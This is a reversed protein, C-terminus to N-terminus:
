SVPHKGRRGAGRHPHYARDVQESALLLHVRSAALQFEREHDPATNPRRSVRIDRRKGQVRLDLQRYAKTRMVDYAIVHPNFVHGPRGFPRVLPALTVQLNIDVDAGGVTPAGPKM